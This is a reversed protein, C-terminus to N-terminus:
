VGLRLGVHPLPRAVVSDAPTGALRDAHPSPHVSDKIRPCHRVAGGTPQPLIAPVSTLDGFLGGAAAIFMLSEQRGGRGDTLTRLSGGPASGSGTASISKGSAPGTASANLRPPLHADQDGATRRAPRPRQRTIV